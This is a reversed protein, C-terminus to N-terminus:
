RVQLVQWIPISLYKQVVECEFNRRIVEPSVYDARQGDLVSLPTFRRRLQTIM